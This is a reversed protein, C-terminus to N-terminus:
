QREALHLVARARQQRDLRQDIQEDGVAQQTNAAELAAKAQKPDIEDIPTAKDTLLTLADSQMQAFGGEIFYWASQGSPEDLRMAGDGLQVLMPARQPAVGVQGDHAPISAYKFDGDLVQKEPTVVTCHFTEPM